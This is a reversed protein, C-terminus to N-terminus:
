WSITSKDMATAYRSLTRSSKTSARRIYNWWLAMLPLGDGAQCRQRQPTVHECLLFLQLSSGVAGVIWATLTQTTQWAVCRTQSPVDGASGDMNFELAFGVSLCALNGSRDNEVLSSPGDLLKAKALDILEITSRYRSDTADHLSAFRTSTPLLSSALPIGTASSSMCHDVSIACGTWKWWAIWCSRMKRRM